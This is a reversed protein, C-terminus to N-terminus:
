AGAYTQAIEFGCTYHLSPLFEIRSAWFAKDLSKQWRSLSCTYDTRHDIERFKLRPCHFHTVAHRGSLKQYLREGRRIKQQTEKGQAVEWAHGFARRRLNRNFM